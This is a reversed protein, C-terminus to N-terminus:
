QSVDDGFYKESIAALTGDARLEALAEDIAAVLAQKDQTFVFAARGAEPDRGRDQARDARQHDRRRPLHAQRQHDRRRPGAAAADGGAGLGRRARRERRPEPRARVLQEHAVARHDQRRPRRLLRRLRRGRARRDRRALRHVARQLPVEGRPRPQHLGSQRHRRLSRRRPGRLDRGM